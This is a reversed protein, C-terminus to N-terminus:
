LTRGSQQRNRQSEELDCYRKGLVNEMLEVPMQQLTHIKEVGMNRLLHYTKEGVMPIKSVSLPALFTKELGWDIKM